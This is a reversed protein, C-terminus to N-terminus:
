VLRGLFILPDQCKKAIFYKLNLHTYKKLFVAIASLLCCHLIFMVKIHVQFYFHEHSLNGFYKSTTTQFQFWFIKSTHRYM